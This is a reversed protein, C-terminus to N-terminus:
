SDRSDNNILKELRQILPVSALFAILRPANRILILALIFVAFVKLVAVLLLAIVVWKGVKLVHDHRGTQVPPSPLPVAECEVVEPTGDTLQKM